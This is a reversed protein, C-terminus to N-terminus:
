WGNSDSATISNLPVKRRMLRRCQVDLKRWHTETPTPNLGTRHVTSLSAVAQEERLCHSEDPWLIVQKFAARNVCQVFMRAETKYRGLRLWYGGGALDCTWNGCRCCRSHGAHWTRSRSPPEKDSYIRRSRSQFTLTHVSQSSRLAKEEPGAKWKVHSINKIVFHQLRETNVAWYKLLTAGHM